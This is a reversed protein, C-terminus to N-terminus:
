EVLDFEIEEDEEEYLDEEIEATERLAIKGQTPNNFTQWLSVGVLGLVYPNNVAMKILDFVSDWTTLSEATIGGYALIPTIVALVVQVIVTLNRRDKLKAIIVRFFNKM